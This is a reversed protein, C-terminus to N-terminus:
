RQVQAPAEPNDPDLEWRAPNDQIYQRLRELSQQDRIVHEYYNRQWIRAGPTARHKNICRTTASKFSGMIAGISRAQPGTPHTRLPSAHTGWPVDWSGTIVLIGHVHNPMVVFADLEVGPFHDPIRLWCGEVTRGVENLHMEGAVVEGFLCVRRKTCITIFYAGPWRYDYGELRISRRGRKPTAQNM